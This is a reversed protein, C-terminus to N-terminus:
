TAVASWLAPCTAAASPGSVPPSRRPRRARGLAHVGREARLHGRFISVFCIPMNALIKFSLVPRIRRLAVRGFRELDLSGDAAAAHEVLRAIQDVPM